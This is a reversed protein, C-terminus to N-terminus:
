LAQRENQPDYFPLAVVTAQVCVADDTRITIDCGPLADDPHVYALGVIQNLTASVECSTVNGVIDGSRIVLHGEKPQPAHVSLSFGVLQRKLPQAMLIEVSRRGVFFPKKRSIAWELGVEGPHSMGDTDQGVIIHGKELRLLRQTEVGFPKIDFAAGASLLRDWLSQAMLSPVHLEYGLEGVFGVRMIRVPIGGVCAERCALYPFAEASLDLDCGASELVDRSRPGAVNVASYASTVQAIDVSLRWQANWRLMDRYVRDVGTTTATVYFHEDALRAAVGDDVVVGQESTLVAYRTKGVPQKLFGYTYIRNLFEAADPGRLDIGGLTSVDIIGVGTRVAQAEAAICATRQSPKGYFAPRRWSGAPIMHAGLARHRSDLPTKRVPHFRRGALLGLPEPKVPPRATTVGTESVTRDTAQAILRATTLASHRGQSPGMGVTSYRKVLQIDRYGLRASNIIDKVQLDEDFDVFERGRPHKFIPWPHNVRLACEVAEDDDAPRSLARLAQRGANRGDACVAELTHISNVGGALLMGEPLQTLAFAAKEDVYELKAGGHCALQYAPMLGASMALLQCEIRATLAGVQGATEINYVDVSGLRLGSADEHAEYVTANFYCTVGREALAAALAPNDTAPRMDVVAALTLGADIATLATLYADDNGALVVAPGEPCVGHHLLLRELASCLVIGPVDNNRFVVPQESSGTALICTNARVKLLREGQFVPLYHDSFWANCTAGSLVRINAAAALSSRLQALMHERTVDELGFRHYTLAGGTYPNEDILLVEAGGAAATLAASIGAPGAGVVAVDCFLYQKDSYRPKVRLNAVGLGATKRIFAEWYRWIGRPKFFARYYFGVPLFRGLRDLLAYRDARLSGLFNQGSVIEQDQADLDEALQNPARPTQVLTNADHGALSLPGRPRHYKFSRSILWRDEGLLASVVSDGRYGRILEGDFEFEVPSDRDILQGYPADLRRPSM